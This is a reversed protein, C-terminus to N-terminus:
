WVHDRGEQIVRAIHRLQPNFRNHHIGPHLLSVGACYKSFATPRCESSRLLAAVGQHRSHRARKVEIVALGSIQRTQERWAFALELDITVRETGDRHILTLRDFSVDLRPRLPSRPLTVAEGLFALEQAGLTRLPGPISLRRKATRGAATHEKLELFSTGTSCYTRSRVKFRRPRGSHHALFLDFSATDFYRNRYPQLKVGGANLVRYEAGLHSLLAECLPLGVVYKDDVRDLLEAEGVADVPIENFGDLAPGLWPCRGDHGHQQPTPVIRPAPAHM